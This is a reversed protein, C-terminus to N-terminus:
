EEGARVLADAEQRVFPRASIASVAGAIASARAFHDAAGLYDLEQMRVEGREARAAAANLRRQDAAHAAAVAIEDGLRAAELDAEEARQLFDEAAGSEGAAIARRAQEFLQKTQPDNAEIASLRALQERHREAIEALTKYLNEPQVNERGLIRFFNAVARETFGLEDALREIRDLPGLEEQLVRRFTQEMPETLPNIIIDGGATIDGEARLLPASLDQSRTPHAFGATAAVVVAMAGFRAKALANM